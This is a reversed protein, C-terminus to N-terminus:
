LRQSYFVEKLKTIISNTPDSRIVKYANTHLIEESKKVYEEGDMIVTSNGKYSKLIAIDDRKRLEFLSGVLVSGKRPLFAFSLYCPM